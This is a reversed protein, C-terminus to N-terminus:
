IIFSLFKSFAKKKLNNGFLCTNVSTTAWLNHRLQLSKSFHVNKVKRGELDDKHVQLVAWDFVISSRIREQEPDNGKTTLKSIIELDL